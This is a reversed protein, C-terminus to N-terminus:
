RGGVPFGELKSCLALNARRCDSVSSRQKQDHNPHHCTSVVDCWDIGFSSRHKPCISMNDDIVINKALLRNAILNRENIIIDDESKEKIIGLRKLYPRIDIEALVKFEYSDAKWQFYDLRFNM